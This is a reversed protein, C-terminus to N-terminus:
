NHANSILNQGGGSYTQNIPPPPPQFILYQDDAGPVYAGNRDEHFVQPYSYLPNTGRQWGTLANPAHVPANALVALKHALGDGKSGTNCSLLWIPTGPKYGNKLMQDLLQAANMDGGPGRISDPTGHGAVSYFGSPNFVSAAEKNAADQSNQLGFPLLDLNVLGYPDIYNVPNNGVNAYLNVGGAEGFPDRNLWRQLHPAYFRYGFYYLEKGGVGDFVPVSEKSSFRYVNASALTGNTSITNGFSDYRYSAVMNQSADLMYAINGNGDAHYYAHSTFNGSSYGASRALLGGIGGAGELSGSLDNGRTYSVVPVNNADREQIVRMGDYIYLTESALTSGGMGNPVFYSKTRLRDLGDYQFRYYPPPSGGCSNDAFTLRNETDYTRTFCSLATVNGNGDYPITVSFNFNTLENKNDYNYTTWVANNSKPSMNGAADYFYAFNESSVPGLSSRLQGINDYTYQTYSGAANTFGTRQNGQNYGYIAADLTVDSSNNLFTGRVRANEDYVNTIYSTNPLLLMQVLTSPLSDQYDYDFDGAPSTVSHIRRTTDYTFQNTWLGTPQQLDMEARLRNWYVNTITDNAWPGDETVLQGSPTYTYATTGIGDVMNTLRNMSDYRFKVQSFGPYVINTLNGINDYKYTTSGKAASWRNTLRNDPDYIYRLVTTGAQDLKNTVRGFLDYQWRTTHNQGDTLSLLDSAANNTYRVVEGNANAEITKRMAEDYTYFNTFNLQNTYAILGRPSYCFKEVGGDPYGRTLLRDIADYTNTTTVNNADTVYVPRDKVDFQFLSVQGAANWTTYLLGQNNYWNTKAIGASDMTWILEGLLDYGNTIAYGDPYVANTMRGANDYYFYTFNGAEDRMSDLAGCTCYTYLTYNGLANTEAIKRRVKDYGFTNTFGMRDVVKTLDLKDYFYSITGRPDSVNTLRQLNNYLNTTTM